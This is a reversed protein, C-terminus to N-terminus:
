VGVDIKERQLEKTIMYEPPREDVGIIWRMYREVMGEEGNGGKGGM